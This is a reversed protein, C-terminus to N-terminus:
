NDNSQEVVGHVEVQWVLKDPRELKEPIKVQEGIAGLKGEEVIVLGSLRTKEQALLIGQHFSDDPHGVATSLDPNLQLPNADQLLGQLVRPYPPKVLQLQLYVVLDAPHM